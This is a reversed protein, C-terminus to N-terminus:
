EAQGTDQQANDPAATTDVARNADFDLEDLLALLSDLQEDKDQIQKASEYARTYIEGNAGGAQIVRLLLRFRETNNSSNMALPTIDALIRSKLSQLQDQNM